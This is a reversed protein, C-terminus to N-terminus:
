KKKRQQNNEIHTLLCEILEQINDDTYWGEDNNYEDEFETLDVGLAKAKDHLKKIDGQWSM